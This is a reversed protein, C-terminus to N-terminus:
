QGEASHGSANTQLGYLQPDLNVTIDHIDITEPELVVEDLMLDGRKYDVAVSSDHYGPKFVVLAYKQRRQLKVRAGTEDRLFQISFHGDRDTVLEVNGPSLEIRARALPNGNRDTVTGGIQGTSAYAPGLMGWVLALWM